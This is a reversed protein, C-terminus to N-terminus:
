FSCCNEFPTPEKTEENQINDSPSVINEQTSTPPRNVDKAIRLIHGILSTM